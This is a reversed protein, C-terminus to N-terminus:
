LLDKLKNWRSDHELQKKEKPQFLKLKELIDSKLSGDKIGPHIKKYPVSLVVMEYIYQSIDIQNSNHPLILIEDSEDNYMEGYKVVLSFSSLSFMEFVEMSLDCPVKINGKTEFTLNLITEKKELTLKTKLKASKFDFYDFGEFFKNDINFDFKHTGTKLGSTNIVFPNLDRM